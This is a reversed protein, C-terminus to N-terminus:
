QPLSRAAQDRAAQILTNLKDSKLQASRLKQRTDALQRAAALAQSDNASLPINVTGNTGSASAKTATDGPNAALYSCLPTANEPTISAYAGDVSSAAITFTRGNRTTVTISNIGINRGANVAITFPTDLADQGQNVRPQIGVRSMLETNTGRYVLYAPLAKTPQVAIFLATLSDVRAQLAQIEFEVQPIQGMAQGALAQMRKPTSARRLDLETNYRSNLTDILQLALDNDGANLASDIQADLALAAEHATNDNTKSCSAILAVAAILIIYQYKM